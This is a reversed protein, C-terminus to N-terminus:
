NKDKICQRKYLYKIFCIIIYIINFILFFLLVIITLCLFTYLAFAGYSLAFVGFMYEEEEYEKMQYSIIIIYLIIVFSIISIIIIQRIEDMWLFSYLIILLANAILLPLFTLFFYENSLIFSHYIEMLLFNVIILSLVMLIYKNEIDQTLFLCNFVIYPIYFIISILFFKGKKEEIDEIFHIILVMSFVTIVLSMLILIWITASPHNIFVKNINLYYGLWTFAMILSFEIKSTLFTKTFFHKNNIVSIYRIAKKDENSNLIKENSNNEIYIKENSIKDNSNDDNSNNILLESNNNSNNNKIEDNDIDNKNDDKQEYGDEMKYALVNLEGEENGINKLDNLSKTLDEEQIAEGGGILFLKKMNFKLRDFINFLSDQERKAKIEKTDGQYHIIVKVIKDPDDFFQMQFKNKGPNYREIIDEFTKKSKLNIKEDNLIIAMTDIDINIQSAIKGCVDRIQEKLECNFTGKQGKYKYNITIM